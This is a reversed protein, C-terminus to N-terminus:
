EWVWEIEKFMCHFRQGDEKELWLRGDTEVGLIQATLPQGAYRYTRMQGLQYLNSIYERHIDVSGHKLLQIYYYRIREIIRKLCEERDIYQGSVKRLSSAHRVEFESQNLNLGIGLIVHQIRNDTITTELLIGGVKKQDLILDNPWKIYVPKQILDEVASHVALATMAILSFQHDVRISTPYLIMSCLLNEGPDSQWIAGRQGRGHTQRLATIVTGEPVASLKLLNAAYNNTSDVTDLRILTADSFFM